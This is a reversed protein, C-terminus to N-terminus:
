VLGLVRHLWASVDRLEEASLSHPMPYEHWEVQYGLALLRDRSDRARGLPIMPDRTGHAMFLPVDRNAASM